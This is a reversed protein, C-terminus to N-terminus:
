VFYGNTHSIAARTDDVSACARKMLGGGCEEEREEEEEKEEEQKTVPWIAPVIAHEHCACAADECHM